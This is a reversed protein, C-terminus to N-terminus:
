YINLLELSLFGHVLVQGISSWQWTMQFVFVVEMLKFKFTISSHSISSISHIFLNNFM